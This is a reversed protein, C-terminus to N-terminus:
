GTQERSELHVFRRYRAIQIDQLLLSAPLNKCIRAGEIQEAQLGAVFPAIQPPAADLCHKDGSLNQERMLALQDRLGECAGYGIAVASTVAAENGVFAWLPSHMHHSVGYDGLNDIRIASG